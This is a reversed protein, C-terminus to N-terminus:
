ASKGAKGAAALKAAMKRVCWRVADSQTRETEIMVTEIAKVTDADLRIFIAADFKKGQKREQTM